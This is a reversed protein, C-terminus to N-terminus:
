GPPEAAHQGADFDGEDGGPRMPPESAIAQAESGDICTPAHSDAGVSRDRWPLRLEPTEGSASSRRRVSRYLHKLNAELERAEEDSLRTSFVIEYRRKFDELAEGDLIM